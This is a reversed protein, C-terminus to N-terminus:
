SRNMFFKIPTIKIIVEDQYQYTMLSISSFLASNISALSFLEKRRLLAALCRTKMDRLERLLTM